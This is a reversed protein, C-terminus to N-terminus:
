DIPSCATQSHHLEQEAVGLDFAGDSVKSDLNIFEGYRFLDVDSSTQILRASCVNEARSIEATEYWVRFHRGCEIVEDARGV